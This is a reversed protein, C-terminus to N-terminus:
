HYGGPAGWYRVKLSHRAPGKGALLFQRWRRRMEILASIKTGTRRMPWIRKEGFSVMERQEHWLAMGGRRFYLRPRTLLALVKAVFLGAFAPREL